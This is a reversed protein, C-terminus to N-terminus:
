FLDDVDVSFGELTSSTVTDREGYTSKDTHIPMSQM